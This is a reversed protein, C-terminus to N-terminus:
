RRGTGREALVHDRIAIKDIKNAANLPLAGDWIMVEKPAKFGAIRSRCHAILDTESADCDPKLSVAAFVMEGWKEHPLGIVACSAVAPHKSLCNETEIPYVNEGGSIIMEKKRGALYLYGDEDFYGADGTWLVGDRLAAATEVPREWYGQMVQPGRVTVEGITGQPVPAGDPALVRIDCYAMPRGVSGIKPVEGGVMKHDAPDLVTIVPAAETMGYGQGFILGPIAARLRRMLDVPMPASGYSVCRLSSFDFEAFRPHDLIMQLMTPVFTSNTVKHTEILTMMEVVEFRPQIVMTMGHLAATFIRAGTAVHFLPGTFLMVDRHSLDFHPATGMANALFNSHSLMVGKPVGTTGSTYVLMATQDSATARVEFADPAVQGAREVLTEYSLVDEPLAVEPADWDAYILHKVDACRSRLAGALAAFHRDVILIEPACDLIVDALEDEALRNNLPVAIAGIMAPAFFCEAMWHSNLGLMAVRAGKPLGLDALAKAFSHARASFAAWTFARGEFHIAIKDPTHHAHKRLLDPLRIVRLARSHRTCDHCDEWVELPLM